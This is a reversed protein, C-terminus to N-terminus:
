MARSDIPIGDWNLDIRKSESHLRGDVCAKIWECLRKIASISADCFRIAQFVHVHDEYVELVIPPPSDAKKAKGCFEVVEDYLKECSGVQILMHPLDNLTNAFLPSIYPDTLFHNDTYYHLRNGIRRDKMQPLYDFNHHEHFSPCSHTLDVWPSLCVAGNPMPKAMDRLVQLASLTMGGGASDGIFVIKSPSFQNVLYLFGSVTDILGCPYPNQPALRYNVSFVPFGTLKSYQYAFQRYMQASGLCYAGGHVLYICGGMNDSTSLWEGDITAMDGAHEPWEGPSKLKLFDIVNSDTYFEAKTIKCDLPVIAPRSTVKQSGVVDGNASLSDLTNKLTHVTVHYSYSWSPKTTGYKLSTVSGIFSPVVSSVLNRISQVAPKPQLEQFFKYVKGNIQQEM